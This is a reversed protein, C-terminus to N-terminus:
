FYDVGFKVDLCFDRVFISFFFIIVVIGVYIGVLNEKGM